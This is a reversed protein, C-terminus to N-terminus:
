EMSIIEHVEVAVARVEMVATIVAELEEEVVVLL